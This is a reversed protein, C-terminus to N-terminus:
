FSVSAVESSQHQWLDILGELEPRSVDHLLAPAFSVAKANGHDTSTFAAPPVTREPQGFPSASLLVFASCLAVAVLGSGLVYRVRRARHGNGSKTPKREAFARGKASRFAVNIGGAPFCDALQQSDASLQEALVALDDPLQLEGKEDLPAPETQIIRPNFPM